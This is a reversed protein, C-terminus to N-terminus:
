RTKTWDEGREGAERMLRHMEKQTEVSWYANPNERRLKTFDAYTKGSSSSTPQSRHQSSPPAPNFVSKTETDGIMLKLFAKPNREAFAGLETETSGLERAKAKAKAAYDPGWVKSLEAMVYDVNQKRTRSIDRQELKQELLKEIDQDSLPNPSNVEQPTNVPPATNIKGVLEELSTRVKLDERLGAQEAEVQKIHRDAHAKAKLLGDVDITGDAKTYRGKLAEVESTVENDSTASNFIENTM